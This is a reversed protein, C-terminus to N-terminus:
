DRGRRYGLGLLDPPVENTLHGGRHAPAFRNGPEPTGTDVDEDLDAGAANEGAEGFADDLTRLRKRDARGVLDVGHEAPEGSCSSANINSRVSLRASTVPALPLMPAPM